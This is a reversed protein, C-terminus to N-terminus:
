NWIDEWWEVVKLKYEVDSEGSLLSDYEDETLKDKLLDKSKDPVVQYTQDVFCLSPFLVCWWNKGKAKGIKIELAEYDGQPFVLDGYAKVPFYDKTLQVTAEYDFGKQKLVDEAMHEIDDLKSSIVMRAENVTSVDALDKQLEKVVKNKVDLKVGQDIVTDSNALVHFRIIENAIGQQINEQEAEARQYFVVVLSVFLVAIGAIIVKRKM